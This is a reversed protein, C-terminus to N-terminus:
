KKFNIKNFFLFFNNNMKIENKRRRERACGDGGGYIKILLQNM